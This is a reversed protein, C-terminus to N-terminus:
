VELEVDVEPPADDCLSPIFRELTKIAAPPPPAAPVLLEDLPPVAVDPDSPADGPYPPPAPPDFLNAPVAVTFEVLPFPPLPAYGPPPPPLLPTTPTVAANKLM